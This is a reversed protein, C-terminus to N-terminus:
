APLEEELVQDYSVQRLAQLLPRDFLTHAEQSNFSM